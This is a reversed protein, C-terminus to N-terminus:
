VTQKSLAATKYFLRDAGGGGGDSGIKRHGGAAYKRVLAEPRTTASWSPM